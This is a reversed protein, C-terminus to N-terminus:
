PRWNKHNRWADSLETMDIIASEGLITIRAWRASHLAAVFPTVDVNLGDVSMSSPVRLIFRSGRPISPQLPTWPGNKKPGVSLQVLPFFYGGFHPHRSNDALVGQIAAVGSPYRCVNWYSCSVYLPDKSDGSHFDSVKLCWNATEDAAVASAQPLRRLTTQAAIIAAALALGTVLSAATIESM